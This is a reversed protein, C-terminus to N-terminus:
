MDTPFTKRLTCYTEMKYMDAFFTGLVIMKSNVNFNFHSDKPLQKWKQRWTFLIYFLVQEKTSSSQFQPKHKNFDHNSKILIVTKIVPETEKWWTFLIHFFFYEQAVRPRHEMTWQVLVKFAVTFVFNMLIWLGWIFKKLFIIKHRIYYSHRQMLVNTDVTYFFHSNTNM